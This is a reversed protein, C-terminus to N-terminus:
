SNRLEALALFAARFTGPKNELVSRIFGLDRDPWAHNLWSVAQAGLSGPEFGGILEDAEQENVLRECIQSMVDALLTQLIATDHAEIRDVIEPRELNLFLRIAGHFDRSWDSPSWHLYWPASEATVDGLLTRLDAIEIPFRAEEGELRIRQRDQWLRDGMRAPSLEGPKSVSAALTIEVVIDLVSSLNDGSLELELCIRQDPPVFERNERHVILMPLRGPGTGIRVGLSLLLEDKNIELDLSAIDPNLQFERRLRITSSNDWDKLFDGAALWDDRNLAVFWSSSEVASESLRLFPFAIRSNM